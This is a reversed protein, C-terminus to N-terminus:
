KIKVALKYVEQKPISFAKATEKIAEKKDMGAELLAELYERPEMLPQESNTEDPSHGEVLLTIEGKPPKGEWTQLIEKPTGRLFEEYVKTLERGVVVRRQPFREGLAKLTANIRHPAEYFIATNEEKELRLLVDKQEKKTRPFFGYYTFADTSFGSAVLAAILATPGPIPTVKIGLAIAEKVLDHGPDSIGPMGADSVLAIKKGGQLAELLAAGKERRNHQHYSTLPTNIEYYNLLKQTHRTDEAAILDVEKLIRLARITIDELNGIPTGCLYLEGQAETNKGKNAPAM